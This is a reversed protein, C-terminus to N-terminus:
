IKSLAALRLSTLVAAYSKNHKRALERITRLGGQYDALIAFDSEIPERAVRLSKLNARYNRELEALAKEDM